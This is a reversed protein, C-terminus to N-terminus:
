WSNCSGSRSQVILIPCGTCIAPNESGYENQKYYLMKKGKVYMYWSSCIM